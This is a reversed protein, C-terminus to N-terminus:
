MARLIEDSLNKYVDRWADRNEDDLPHDTAGLTVELGHLLALGMKPFYSKAIGLKAHREGVQQCIDELFEVDPGILQLLTDFLSVINDGHQKVNAFAEVAKPELILFRFSSVLLLHPTTLVNTLCSTCAHM